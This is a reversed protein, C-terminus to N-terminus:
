FGRFLAKKSTSTYDTQLRILYVGTPAVSGDDTRGDWSFRADCGSTGTPGRGYRGPLFFGSVSFSPVLTRVLTGRIDHVSLRVLTSRHVDFWICTVGSSQSPFPNPFNQYLLTVTPAAAQQSPAPSQAAGSRLALPAAVVLLRAPWRV